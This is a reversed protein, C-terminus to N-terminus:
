DIWATFRTYGTTAGASSCDCQHLVASYPTEAATPPLRFTFSTTVAFQADPCPSAALPNAFRDCYNQSLNM